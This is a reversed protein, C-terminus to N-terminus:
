KAASGSRKTSRKNVTKKTAVANDHNEKSDDITTNITDKSDAKLKLNQKDSLAPDATGKEPQLPLAHPAWGTGSFHPSALSHLGKFHLLDEETMEWGRWSAFDERPKLALHCRVNAALQHILEIVEVPQLISYLYGGYNSRMSVETTGGFATGVTVSAARCRNMDMEPSSTDAAQRAAEAAVQKIMESMAEARVKDRDKGFM